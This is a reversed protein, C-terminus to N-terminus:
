EVPTATLRSRVHPSTPSTAEAMTQYQQSSSMHSYWANVVAEEEVRHYVFILERGVTYVYKCTWALPEIILKGAWQLANAFRVIAAPFRDAPGTIAILAAVAVTIVVVAWDRQPSM